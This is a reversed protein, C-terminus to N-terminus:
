AAGSVGRRGSVEGPGLRGVFVARAIAALGGIFLPYAALAWLNLRIIANSPATGGQLLEDTRITLLAVQLVAGSIAYAILLGFGWSAWRWAVGLQERRFLAFWLGIGAVIMMPLQRVLFGALVAAQDTLTM